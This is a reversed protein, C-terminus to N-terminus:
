FPNEKINEIFKIWAIERGSLTGTDRGLLNFFNTALVEDSIIVYVFAVGLSLFVIQVAHYMSNKKIGLMSWYPIIAFLLAVLSARSGSLFLAYLLILIWIICKLKSESRYLYLALIVGIALRTAFPNPNGYFSAIREGFIRQTFETYGFSIKLYQIGNVSGYTGTHYIIIGYLASILAIYIGIKAVHKFLLRLDEIKSIIIYLSCVVIIYQIARTLTTSPNYSNLTSALVLISFLAISIFLDKKFIGINLGSVIILILTSVTLLGFTLHSAIPYLQIGYINHLSGIFSFILLLAIVLMSFYGTSNNYGNTCKKNGDTM